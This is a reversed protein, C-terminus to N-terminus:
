LYDWNNIPFKGQFLGSKEVGDRDRGRSLPLIGAEAPLYPTIFAINKWQIYKNLSM